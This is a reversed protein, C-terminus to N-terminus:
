RRWQSFLCLFFSFSLSCKLVPSFDSFILLFNNSIMPLIYSSDIYILSFWLFDNCFTHLIQPFAIFTLEHGLHFLMTLAKGWLSSYLLNMGLSLSLAASHILKRTFFHLTLEDGRRMAFNIFFCHLILSLWQFFLTFVFWIPTELLLLFSPGSPLSDTEDLSRM